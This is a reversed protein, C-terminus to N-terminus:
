QADGLMAHMGNTFDKAYASRAAAVRAEVEARSWQSMILLKNAFEGNSSALLGNGYRAILDSVGIESSCVFLRGVALGEQYVASGRLAYTEPDYPILLIDSDKYTQDIEEQMLRAKLLTLDPVNRLLSQYRLRFNPDSRRMDQVIYRFSKKNGALQHLRAIIPFLRFFGKDQRGQGPSSIVKTEEWRVPEADHALPYPLYAVPMQLLRELYRAYSPTEASMGIQVGSRVAGRIANLVEPRGPKWSYVAGEMVGIMRLHLKPRKEPPQESLYRMLACTGYYDASPLFLMDNASIEYNRFVESWNKVTANLTFDYGAFDRLVKRVALKQFRRAARQTRDLLSMDSKRRKKFAEAASLDPRALVTNEDSGKDSDEKKRAPAPPIFAAYPYNLVREVENIQEAYTPLNKTALCHVADFHKELGKKFLILSNLNHGYPLVCM